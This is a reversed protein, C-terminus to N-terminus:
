LAVRNWKVRRQGCPSGPKLEGNEYCPLMGALPKTLMAIVDGLGIPPRDKTYGHPCAPLKVVHRLFAPRTLCEACRVTGVNALVPCNVLHSSSPEM